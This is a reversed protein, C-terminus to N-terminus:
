NDLCDRVFRAGFFALGFVLVVSLVVCVSNLVLM